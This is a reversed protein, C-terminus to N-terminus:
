SQPGPLPPVTPTSNEPSPEIDTEATTTIVARCGYGHSGVGVRAPRAPQEQGRRRHGRQAAAGGAGLRRRVEQEGSAEDVVARSPRRDPPVDAHRAVADAEDAVRRRGAEVGGHDHVDAPQHDRGAEDVHVRVGLQRLVVAAVGQREEM